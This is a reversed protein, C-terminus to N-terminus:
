YKFENHREFAKRSQLPKQVRDFNFMVLLFFAGDIGEIKNQIQEKM